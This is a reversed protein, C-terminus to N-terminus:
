GRMAHMTIIVGAGFAAVVLIAILLFIITQRETPSNASESKLAPGNVVAPVVATITPKPKSVDIIEFRRLPESKDSGTPCPEIKCTDSM